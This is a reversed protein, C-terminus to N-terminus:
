TFYKEYTKHNVIMFCLLYITEDKIDRTITYLMRWETRTLDCCFCNDLDILEPFDYKTFFSNILIRNKNLVNKKIIEGYNYDIKIKEKFFDFKKLLIKNEKVKHNEYLEKYKEEAQCIVKFILKM